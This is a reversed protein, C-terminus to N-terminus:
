QLGLKHGSDLPFQVLAVAHTGQFHMLAQFLKLPADVTHM